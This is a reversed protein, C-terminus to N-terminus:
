SLGGDRPSWVPRGALKDLVERGTLYTPPKDLWALVDRLGERVIRRAICAPHDDPRAGIMLVKRGDWVDLQVVYMEGEPLHASTTIPIGNFLPAGQGFMFDKFRTM